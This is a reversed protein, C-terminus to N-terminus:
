RHCERDLADYLRCMTREVRQRLQELEDDSLDPPVHIPDAYHFLARSCPKPIQFRDWSPLEWFRSVSVAVPILPLGTKQSLYLPGLKLTHRPGRPGDPTIALISQPAIRLMEAIAQAGGRTSSGRVTGYGLWHIARAIYEGDAHQSILVRIIPMKRHHYATILIMRHWFLYIGRGGGAAVTKRRNDPRSIVRVTCGVLRVLWSGLFGALAFWLRQRVPRHPSPTMPHPLLPTIPRQTCTITLEHRKSLFQPEGQTGM